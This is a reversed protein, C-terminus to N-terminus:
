QKPKTAGHLCRLFILSLSKILLDIVITNTPCDRAKGPDAIYRESLPISLSLSQLMSAGAINVRM